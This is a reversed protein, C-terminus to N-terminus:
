KWLLKVCGAVRHEWFWFGLNFGRFLLFGGCIAWHVSVFLGLGCCVFGCRSLSLFRCFVFERFHVNVLREARWWSKPLTGQSRKGAAGKGITSRSLNYPPLLKINKELICLFAACKHASDSLDTWYRCPKTETINWFINIVKQILITHKPPPLKQKKNNNKSNGIWKISCKITKIPIQKSFQCPLFSLRLPAISILITSIYTNKATPPAKPILLFTSQKLSYFVITCKVEIVRVAAYYHIKTFSHIM